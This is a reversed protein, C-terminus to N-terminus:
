IPFGGFSRSHASILPIAALLLYANVACPRPDVNRNSPRVWTFRRQTAGGPIRQYDMYGSRSEVRLIRGHLFDAPAFFGTRVSPGRSGSLRPIQDLWRGQEPSNRWSEAETLISTPKGCRDCEARDTGCGDGDATESQGLIVETKFGVEEGGLGGGHVGGNGERDILGAADNVDDV